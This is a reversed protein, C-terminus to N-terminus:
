VNPAKRSFGNILLWVTFSLEGIVGTCIVITEFYSKYDNYNTLFLKSFCDIFYGLAALILLFSILKPIFKAKSALFGLLMLHVGFFLLGVTWLLDFRALLEFVMAELEISNTAQYTLNYVEFLKMLAIAFFLAHFGRFLSATYSFLLHTSATIKFLSWILFVDAILMGLFGFLGNRFQSTNGIINLTTLSQNDFDILAELIAFNAYFGTIFIVLYAIGSIKLIKKM